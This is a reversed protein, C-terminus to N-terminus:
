FVDNNGLSPKSDCDIFKITGSFTVLVIEQECYLIHNTNYSSTMLHVFNPQMCLSFGVLQMKNDVKVFFCAVFKLLRM